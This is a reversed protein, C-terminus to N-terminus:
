ATAVHLVMMIVPFMLVFINGVRLSVKTLADNAADYRETEHPERVFARVVRIGMIQERLVGNIGDIRDQMQRFLPMLLWVLIAVIVGLVPVSVWVLWSLGVDERLAMIIGGICMIPATVMFNFTMLVLMQVQQVDNTGRTILTASGFRGLDLASLQDVQRYVSRRIDRGVAMATRAGFFVALVATLAQMFCVILMV